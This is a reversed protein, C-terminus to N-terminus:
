FRYGVRGDGRGEMVVHLEGLPKRVLEKETSYSFL